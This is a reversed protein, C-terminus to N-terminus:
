REKQRKMPRSSPTLTDQAAGDIIDIGSNERHMAALLRNKEQTCSKLQKSLEATRGLLVEQGRQQLLSAHSQYKSPQADGRKITEAVAMNVNRTLSDCSACLTWSRGARDKAIAIRMCCTSRMVHHLVPPVLSRATVHPELHIYYQPACSSPGMGVISRPLLWDDTLAARCHIGRSIVEAFAAARVGPDQTSNAELRRKSHGSCFFVLRSCLPSVVTFAVAPCFALVLSAVMFGGYNEM